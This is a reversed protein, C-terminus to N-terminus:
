RVAAEMLLRRFFLTDTVMPDRNQWVAVFRYEAPNEQDVKLFALHTSVIGSGSDPAESYNVLLDAPAIVAM